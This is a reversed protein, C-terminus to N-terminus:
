RQLRDTAAAGGGQGVADSGPEPMAIAPDIHARARQWDPKPLDATRVVCTHISFVVAGTDPLRLLCQREARLYHAQKPPVRPAVEPRPQFLAPDDYAFLNGRMLPKGPRIGDFLRQVRAAIGADYDAVPTHIGILPRGLKEALTWSAPFCLAASTLIHAGDPGPQLICLDEQVLRAAIALPDDPDLPVTVGDSRRIADRTTAYGPWASVVQLVAGLLERPAAEASPAMALVDARREALLRDRLAMQATYADDRMLWDDAGVPVTGPLRDLDPLEPLRRNLIPAAGARKDQQGMQPGAQDTKPAIRAQGIRM